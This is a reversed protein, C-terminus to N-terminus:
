IAGGVSYASSPAVLGMSEPSHSGHPPVPALGYHGTSYLQNTLQNIRSQAVPDGAAAAAEAGPPLYMSIM